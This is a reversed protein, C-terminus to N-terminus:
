VQSRAGSFGSRTPFRFVSPRMDYVVEDTGSLRGGSRTPVIRTSCPRRDVALVGGTM